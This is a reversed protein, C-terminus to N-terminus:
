VKMIERELAMRVRAFEVEIRALLSAAQSLDSTQGLMELDGCLRAMQRAGLNASSGKLTHAEQNVGQADGAAIAERLAALRRPTVASFSALLQPLIAKGSAAELKRLNAVVTQNLVEDVAAEPPTM